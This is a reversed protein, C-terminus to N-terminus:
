AAVRADNEFAYIRFCRCNVHPSRDGPPGYSAGAPFSPLIIEYYIQLWDRRPKLHLPRCYPCVMEDVQTIWIDDASVGQSAAGALAADTTQTAAMRAARVEGFINDLVEERNDDTLGTFLKRSWATSGRFILGARSNAWREAEDRAIQPDAGHQIASQWFLLILWKLSEERQLQEAREWFEEPVNSPDPPDGLLGRLERQLRQNVVLYAFEFAEEQKMRDALESM